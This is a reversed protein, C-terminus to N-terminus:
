VAFFLVGWAPTRTNAASDFRGFNADVTERNLNSKMLCVNRKPWRTFCAKQVVVPYPSSFKGAKGVKGVLLRTREHKDTHTSPEENIRHQPLQTFFHAHTHTHRYPIRRCNTHAFYFSISLSLSFSLPQGRFINRVQHTGKKAHGSFQFSGREGRRMPFRSRFFLPLFVGHRWFLLLVCVLAKRTKKIKKWLCVLQLHTEASYFDDKKREFRQTEKASRFHKAKWRTYSFRTTHTHSHSETCLTFDNRGEGGKMLCADFLNLTSITPRFVM